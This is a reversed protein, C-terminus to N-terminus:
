LITFGTFRYRGHHDRVITAALARYRTGWTIIAPVYFTTRRPERVAQAHQRRITVTTHTQAAAVCDAAANIGALGAATAFHRDFLDRLRGRRGNVVALAVTLMQHIAAWEQRTPDFGDGEAIDPRNTRPPVTEAETRQAGITAVMQTLWERATHADVHLRALEDYAATIQERAPELLGNAASPHTPNATSAPEISPLARVTFDTDTSM